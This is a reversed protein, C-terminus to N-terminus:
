RATWFVPRPPDPDSFARVACRSIMSSNRRNPTLGSILSQWPLDTNSQTLLSQIRSINPSYTYDATLPSSRDLYRHELDQAPADPNTEVLLGTKM